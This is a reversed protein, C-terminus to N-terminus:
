ISATDDKEDKMEDYAPLLLTFTTGKGAETEFSITGGSSTIINYVISLGIGMGSSKTTFYPTFVKKAQETTMGKGNDSLTIRFNDVLSSLAIKIQATKDKDVAQIANKFLNNFVRNLNKPDAYIFAESRSQNHFSFKVNAMGEYLRINTQIIEALDLKEPNSRPMKAFDSFASAIESLTDIQDVLTQTTNKLKTEIDPDNEQWAKLMHQISLRMPTLPNKIEHAVQRAMERWASERESRALLEASKQLEDIMHNYQTILQGIEDNAKWAIKENLSNFKVSRMKEQIMTLPKTLQRSLLLAMIVSIGTLLFFINVYTLVFASIENRLESERAFYPLNIYAVSNGQSDAFPIYSSLYTAKGIQEQQLYFLEGKYHMKRFAVPNMLESLLGREFIEPRSSALLKGNLDYLNIDSYFVLSFKVLLQYLYTAMEPGRINQDKLKHEIEILISQTKETLMANNKQQYINRIYIASSTGIVIFSFVLSGIMLLQLRLRFNITGASFFQQRFALYIILLGLIGIFIFFYTFPAVTDIIGKSRKSVLLTFDDSVPYVFHRFGNLTFLENPEHSIASLRAPYMYSGFKYVLMGQAYRAFTYKSLDQTIGRSEDVLLEPYGLGEPIFKSYFELYISVTDIKASSPNIAFQIQSIYYTGQLNDRIRYLGKSEAEQGFSTFLGDFYEYCNVLYNEPQVNLLEDRACITLHINFREYYGTFYNDTLYSTIASEVLTDTTFHEFLMQRFVTDSAITPQTSLFLFEFVPDSEISLNFARLRLDQDSKQLNVRYFIITLLLSFFLLPWIFLKMRLSEASSQNDALKFIVLILPMAFVFIGTLLLDKAISWSLLMFFLFVVVSILWQKRLQFLCALIVSSFFYFAVTLGSLVLFSLYSLINLQYLEAFSLPIASHFLLSEVTHVYFIYLFWFGAGLLLAFPLQQKLTRFAEASRFFKFFYTAIFTITLVNLMLEGFNPFLFGSSYFTASFLSSEYLVGPIEFFRQLIRIILLDLSLLVFRVLKSKIGAALKLHLSCVMAYIFAQALILLIMLTILQQLSHSTTEKISISFLPENTLGTIAYDGEAPDTHLKVAAEFNFSGSFQNRLFSNEFPFNYKVLSLVVYTLEDEIASGSLYYGNMLKLFRLTDSKAFDSQGFGITNDSWFVLSDSKYVFVSVNNSQAIHYLREDQFNEEAMVPFHVSLEHLSKGIDEQQSLVTRQIISFVREPSESSKQYAVSVVFLLVLTAAIIMHRKWLNEKGSLFWGAFRAYQM